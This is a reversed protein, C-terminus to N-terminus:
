KLKLMERVKAVLDPKHIPKTLFGEAGVDRAREMDAVENLATVMVVPIKKTAPDAKLKSCLQYGSMRPMMIDLLILDPPDRKITELAQLGDTAVSIQADLEELYAELLELNQEHDDVLLIHPARVGGPEGSGAPQPISGPNNANSSM